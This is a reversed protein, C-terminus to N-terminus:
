LRAACLLRHMFCSIRCIRGSRFRRAGLRAMVADGTNEAKALNSPVSNEKYVAIASDGPDLNIIRYIEGEAAFRRLVLACLMGLRGTESKLMKDRDKETDTICFSTNTENSFQENGRLIICPVKFLKSTSTLTGHSLCHHLRYVANLTKLGV